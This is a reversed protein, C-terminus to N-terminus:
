ATPVGPYLNASGLRRSVSPFLGVARLVTGDM